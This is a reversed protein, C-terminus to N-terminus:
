ICVFNTQMLKTCEVCSIINHENGWKMASKAAFHTIDGFIKTKVDLEFEYIRVM